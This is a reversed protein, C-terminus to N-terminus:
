ILLLRVARFAWKILKIIQHYIQRFGFVNIVFPLLLFCSANFMPLSLDVTLVCKGCRLVAVYIRIYYLKMHRLYDWFKSSSIRIIITTASNTCNFFRCFTPSSKDLGDHRIRLITNGFLLFALRVFWSHRIWIRWRYISFWLKAIALISICLSSILPHDNCPTFPPPSPSKLFTPNVKDFTLNYASRRKAAVSIWMILEQNHGGARSCQLQFWRVRFKPHKM